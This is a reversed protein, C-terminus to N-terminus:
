HIHSQKGNVHDQAALSSGLYICFKLIQITMSIESCASSGRMEEENWGADSGSRPMMLGWGYRCKNMKMRLFQSYVSTVPGRCFMKFIVDLCLRYAWTQLPRKKERCTSFFYLVPPFPRSLDSSDWCIVLSFSRSWELAVTASFGWYVYYMKLWSVFYVNAAQVLLMKETKRGWYLMQIESVM